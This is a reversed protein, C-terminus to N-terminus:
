HRWWENGGVQKDVDKLLERDHKSEVIIEEHRDQQGAENRELGDSLTERIAEQEYEYTALLERQREQRRDEVEEAFERASEGEEEISDRLDEFEDELAWRTKEQEYEYSDLLEKHRKQSLIESAVTSAVILQRNSQGEDKIVQRTTEQEGKIVQRTFKEEEEICDRLYEFEDGICEQLEGVCENLERFGNILNRNVSDLAHSIDTFKKVLDGFGEVLVDRTRYHEYISAFQFDTQGKRVAARFWDTMQKLTKPDVPNLWEERFPSPQPDGERLNPIKLYQGCLEKYERYCEAISRMETELRGIKVAFGCVGDWFPAFARETFDAEIQETATRMESLNVCLGDYSQLSKVTLHNEIENVCDEIKTKREREAAEQRAIEIAEQREIETREAIELAEKEAQKTERERKTAEQRAKEVAKQQIRAADEQRARGANELITPGVFHQNGLESFCNWQQNYVSPNNIIAEIIFRGQNYPLKTDIRNTTGNNGSTVMGVERNNVFLRVGVGTVYNEGEKVDIKIRLIWDDEHWAKSHHIEIYRHDM